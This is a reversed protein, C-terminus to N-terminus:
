WGSWAAWASSSRRAPSRHPCRRGVLPRDLEARVGDLPGLELQRSRAIRPRRGPALGVRGVGAARRLVTIADAYAGLDFEGAPGVLRVPARRSARDRGRARRVPGAVDAGALRPPQAPPRPQPRRRPPDRSDRWACPRPCIERLYGAVDAPAVHVFVDFSWVGDVSATPVGALDSGTALVYEVNGADAFEARCLDLARASVDVLILRTARPLLARSWRGAGPGIELLVGRAPMLRELVDGILSAKWEPSATWEEGARAWDWENWRDRNVGVSNGRWALHAPGLVLRRQEASLRVDEIAHLMGLTARRVGSGLRRITPGALRLRPVTRVIPPAEVSMAAVLLACGGAVLAVTLTDEGLLLSVATAIGPELTLLIATQMSDLRRQAFLQLGYALATAAIGAYVASWLVGSQTWAVVSTRTEFGLCALSLGFCLLSQVAVSGVVPVGGTVSDAVVIYLAFALACLLSLVDGARWHGASGSFILVLGATALLAAVWSRRSPARRASCWVLFPVALVSLSTVFASDAPSTTELGAAQLGLAAFLLVGLIWPGPKALAARLEGSRVAFPTLVLAALLFRLSLFHFLPVSRVGSKIVVFSGGWITVAIVLAAVAPWRGAARPSSRGDHTGALEVSRGIM